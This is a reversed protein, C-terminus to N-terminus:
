SDAALVCVCTLAVLRDRALQEAGQATARRVGHVALSLRPHPTSGRHQQVAATLHLRNDVSTSGVISPIIGRFIKLFPECIDRLFRDRQGDGHIPRRIGRCLSAPDRHLRDAAAHLRLHDDLPLRRHRHATALVM